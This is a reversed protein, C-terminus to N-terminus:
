ERWKYNRCGPIPCKKFAYDHQCMEAPASNVPEAIAYGAEKPVQIRKASRARPLSRQSDVEPKSFKQGEREAGAEGSCRRRIWESLSLKSAEADLKWRVLDGGDVRITMSIKQVLTNDM